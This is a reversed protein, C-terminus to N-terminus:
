APLLRVIGTGEVSVYIYGDPGMRVDRVRGLNTLLKEQGIVTNGDLMLHQLYSFSLSGVLLDGKWGPYVNSTIFATGSPAISPVWYHIPQEMGERKEEATIQTGNYNIGYTIVPWGYNLGAQLINLEDGGRPGHETEWLENTFPNLALGQPNRHGYSYVAAKAGLSDVFPNDNPISGDDNLRYIKGGDRRIDQPNEDRNGRDGISFFVKGDKWAIRSGFHHAKDSDPSAHYLEEFSTITDDTIQIRALTTNGAEDGEKSESFTLYIWGNEKYNPHTSVDLLGGQGKDFVTPMGAVEIAQGNEIILLKGSKETAILKQNDLWTFAWLIDEYAFLTDYSLAKGALRYKNDSPTIDNSVATTNGCASLLLSIFLLSFFNSKMSAFFESAVSMLAGFIAIINTLGVPFGNSKSSNPLQATPKKQLCQMYAIFDRLMKDYNNRRLVYGTEGNPLDTLSLLQFRKLLKIHESVTAQHLPIREAIEPFTAGELENLLELIQHRAPHYFVLAYDAIDQQHQAFRYKKALAM